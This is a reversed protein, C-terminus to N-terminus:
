EIKDLGTRVDCALEVGTDGTRRGRRAPRGRARLLGPPARPAARRASPRRRRRPREKESSIQLGTRSRGSSDYKMLDSNM